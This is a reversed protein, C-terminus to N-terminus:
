GTVISAHLGCSLRTYMGDLDARTAGLFHCDDTKGQQGFPQPEFFRIELISGQYTSVHVVVQPKGRGKLKSGCGFSQLNKVAEWDLQM